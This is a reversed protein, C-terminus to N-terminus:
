LDDVLTISVQNSGDTLGVPKMIVGGTRREAGLNVKRRWTGARKASASRM